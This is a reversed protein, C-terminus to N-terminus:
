VITDHHMYERTVQKKLFFIIVSKEMNIIYILNM